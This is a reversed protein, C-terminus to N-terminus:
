KEIYRFGTGIFGVQEFDQMNHRIIYDIYSVVMRAILAYGCPNMHGGLYFKKRFDSDFVPGYKGIDIVYCNSFIEALKYLIESHVLRKEGWIDENPVTLFFFKADPQIEKYRQIIKAYYGIFTPKNNEYNQLDIDDFEGVPMNCNMLDNVGLAIIYAVCKKDPDWFGNNEAFSECYEKATMGGRSFNYITTRTMRALFQGWSYEYYDHYTKDGNENVAEFEGSSMSDGVCGITRLIGCFGGDAPVNDLPKECENFLASIDM